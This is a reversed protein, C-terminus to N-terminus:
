RMLKVIKEEDIGRLKEIAARMKEGDEPTMEGMADKTEEVLRDLKAWLRDPGPEILKRKTCVMDDAADLLAYWCRADVAEMIEYFVDSLGFQWAPEAGSITNEDGDKQVLESMDLDTFYALLIYKRAFPELWPVYRVGDADKIFQMNCLEEAAAGFRTLPIIPHVTVEAQKDGVKITVKVDQPAHEKLIKKMMTKSVAM